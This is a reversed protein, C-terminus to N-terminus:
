YRRGYELVWVPGLPSQWYGAAFERFDPELINKRHEPSHMLGDFTKWPDTFGLTLNEGVLWSGGVEPVYGTAMFIRMFPDACPRHEFEHCEAIRDRKIRASRYLQGNTRLRALGALRRTRNHYCLMKDASHACGARVGTYWTTQAPAPRPATLLALATAVAAWIWLKTSTRGM